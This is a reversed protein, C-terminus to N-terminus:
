QTPVLRELEEFWNLVVRVESAMTELPRRSIAMTTGDSSIAIDQIAPIELFLSPRGLALSSGSITVSVVMVGADGIYFIRDGSPDWKPSRGGAASVPWKRGGEPFPVAFIEYRGTESSSYLAFNGDPSFAPEWEAAATAVDAVRPRASRRGPM